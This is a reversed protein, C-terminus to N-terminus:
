YPFYITIFEYFKRKQIKDRIWWFFDNDYGDILSVILVVQDWTFVNDISTQTLRHKVVTWWFKVTIHLLSKKIYAKGKFWPTEIGLEVIKQAVWRVLDKRHEKYDIDRM